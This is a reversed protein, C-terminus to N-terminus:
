DSTSRDFPASGASSITDLNCASRCCFTRAELASFGFRRPNIWFFPRTFAEFGAPFARIFRNNRFKTDYRRGIRNRAIRVSTTTAFGTEVSIPDCVAQSLTGPWLPM